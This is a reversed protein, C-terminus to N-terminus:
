FSYCAKWDPTRSDKLAFGLQGNDRDWLRYRQPFIGLSRLGAAYEYRMVLHDTESRVARFRTLRRM